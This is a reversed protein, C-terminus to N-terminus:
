GITLRLTDVKSLRKEYPLTPIHQRLGEFADNISQMRKRERMNAAYRQQVAAIASKTNKKNTSHTKTVKSLTKNCSYNTKQDDSRDDCNLVQHTLQFNDHSHLTGEVLVNELMEECCHSQSDAAATLVDDCSSKTSTLMSSACETKKQENSKAEFSQNYNELNNRNIDNNNHQSRNTLPTNYYYGYGNHSLPPGQNPQYSSKSLPSSTNSTPYAYTSPRHHDQTSHAAAISLASQSHPSDADSSHNSHISMSPSSSDYVSDPGSNNSDMMLDHFVQTTMFQGRLAAPSTSLENNNYVSSRSLSSSVLSGNNENKHVSSPM